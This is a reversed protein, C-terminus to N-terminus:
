PKEKRSLLYDGIDSMYVDLNWDIMLDKVYEQRMGFEASYMIVLKEFCSQVFYDKNSLDKDLKTM